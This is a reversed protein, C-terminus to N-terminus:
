KAKHDVWRTGDLWQLKFVVSGANAIADVFQSKRRLWRSQFGIIEKAKDPTSNRVPTAVETRGVLLPKLGQKTQRMVVVRCQNKGEIRKVENEAPLNRAKGNIVKGSVGAAKHTRPKRAAKPADAQAETANTSSADAQAETATTENTNENEM